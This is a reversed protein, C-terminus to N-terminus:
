GACGTWLHNWGYVLCHTHTHNQSYHHSLTQTHTHTLSLPDPGTLRDTQRQTTFLIQGPLQQKHTPRVQTILPYGLGHRETNGYLRGRDRVSTLWMKWWRENLLDRIWRINQDSFFTIGALAQGSRPEAKLLVKPNFAGWHLNRAAKISKFSCVHRHNSRSLNQGVEAQQALTQQSSDLFLGWDVFMSLCIFLM